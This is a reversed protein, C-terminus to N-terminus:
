TDGDHGGKGSCVGGPVPGPPANEAPLIPVVRHRNTQSRHAHYRALQM